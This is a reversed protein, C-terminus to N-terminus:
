AGKKGGHSTSFNRLIRCSRTVRRYGCERGQDVVGVVVVAVSDGKAVVGDDNAVYMRGQKRRALPRGRQWRNVVRHYQVIVYLDVYCCVISRRCCLVAQEVAASVLLVWLSWRCRCRLVCKRTEHGEPVRRRHLGRRWSSASGYFGGHELSREDERDADRGTRDM